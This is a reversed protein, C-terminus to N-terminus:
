GGGRRPREETVLSEATDASVAVAEAVTVADGAAGDVLAISPAVNRPMAGGVEIADRGFMMPKECVHGALEDAVAGHRSRLCLIKAIEEILIKGPPDVM